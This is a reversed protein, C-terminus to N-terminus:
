RRRSRHSCGASGARLSSRSFRSSRRQAHQGIKSRIARSPLRDRLAVHEVGEIHAHAHSIATARRLHRCPAQTDQVLLPSGPAYTSPSITAPSFPTSSHHLAATRTEPPPVFRCAMMSAFRAPSIGDASSASTRPTSRMRRHARGRASVAPIAWATGACPSPRLAPPIVACRRSVSSRSFAISTTTSAPKRVIRGSFTM